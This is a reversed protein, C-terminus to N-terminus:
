NHTSSTCKIICLEGYQIKNSLIGKQEKLQIFDMQRDLHLYM